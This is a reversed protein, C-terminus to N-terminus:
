DQSDEEKEDDDSDDDSDSDDDDHDDSDVSMDDSADNKNKKKKNNNTTVDDMTETSMNMAALALKQEKDVAALHRQGMSPADAPRICELQSVDKPAVELKSRATIAAAAHAHCKELCAQAFRQWRQNCVQKVFAQLRQVIRISFEPFGASYRYLDVERELLLFIETMAPELQEQTRLTDDKPLKLLMAMSIGRTNSNAAVGGGAKDNKKKGKKSGGTKKPKLYWEKWDLCDLLLLTTPIFTETAAALQQLLRICHLRLPLHRVPCPALRATGITIETLPYVLSQMLTSSAASGGGQQQEQTATQALIAVWVHLSHVFQWCYVQQFAVATKKQMYTRLQLALERIYVFAHQYSSDYDLSYLEVLCNGMFTLTPLSATGAHSSSTLAAVATTGTAFKARKTYALYTKKLVNEIFPFPQTLALQRIRFFAHLRVVQYDQSSDLSPAGSWLMNLTKLMADALRPFPTLLPIYNSLAKLIFTLLEPEKSGGGTDSQGQSLIHMTSRFFSRLVPQVDSWRPANELTKPHIPKNDNVEVKMDGSSDTASANGSNEDSHNSNKDGFNEADTDKRSSSSSNSSNELLQLHHRFEEHGRELVLVMLKDFVISSDIHYSKGRGGDGDTDGAAGGAVDALHCASRYANVLKRLSKLGHATFAGKELTQLLEPTLHITDDDDKAKKDTKAKEGNSDGEDDDDDDDDDQGFELLSSENENLFKHFAPDSKTLNSMEKKMRREAAEVDEDDSGSDDGADDDADSSSNSDDDGDGKSNKNTKTKKKSPPPAAQETESDDSDVDDDDESDTGDALQQEELALNVTSFFSDMDLNAINKAGLFDGNKDNKDGASAAATKKPRSASQPEKDDNNHGAADAKSRKNTNTNHHIKGKKVITGGNELRGQVGGKALFKRARKNQKGMISIIIIVEEKAQEKSSPNNSSYLQGIKRGRQRRKRSAITTKNLFALQFFHLHTKLSKKIQNTPSSSFEFKFNSVVFLELYWGRVKCLSDEDTREVKATGYLIMIDKLSLSVSYALAMSVLIPPLLLSM